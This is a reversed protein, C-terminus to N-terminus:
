TSTHRQLYTLRTEIERRHRVFPGAVIKGGSLNRVTHIQQKRRALSKENPRHLVEEIAEVVFLVSLQLLAGLTEETLFAAVGM